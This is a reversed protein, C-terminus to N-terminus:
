AVLTFLRHSRDNLGYPREPTGIPKINFKPFRKPLVKHLLDARLRLLDFVKQCREEPAGTARLAALLREGKDSGHCLEWIAKSTDHMDDYNLTGDTRRMWGYMGSKDWDVNCIVDQAMLVAEM